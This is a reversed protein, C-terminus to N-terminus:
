ETCQCVYGRRLAREVPVQTHCDECEVEITAHVTIDAGVALEGKNLLSRVAESAKEEARSATIAIADREWEGQTQEAELGLCDVLHTRVVGYSVFDDQLQEIPVGERRLVNEVETATVSDDQLREYKSQAEGGLTELGARDMENRLLTVNLEEALARYGKRNEADATWQEVLRDEYTDLGYRDLVRCVKCGYETM